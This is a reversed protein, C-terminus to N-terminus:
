RLHQQLETQRTGTMGRSPPWGILQDTRLVRRLPGAARVDGLLCESAGCSENGRINWTRRWPRPPWSTAVVAPSSATAAGSAPRCAWANGPEPESGIPAGTIDFQRISSWDIGVLLGTGSGSASIM